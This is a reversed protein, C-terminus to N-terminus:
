EFNTPTQQKEIKKRHNGHLKYNIIKEDKDRIFVMTEGLDDDDRIRRFTDGEIHKYFTLSNGPKESPLNISVLKDGWTSIHVEGWYPFMSYYGVFEQLDIKKIPVDTQEIKKPVKVKNLISNIGEVYKNPNTGNANIMVSYARKNKLDIQLTTKYGPCDGGQGVWTNGDERKYVVFGLGRTIKWDSDTWHVNHMYKLTSSKLIEPTTTDRLRFQWSAFKGLDQVNSSFGAAPKLGNAKFFNVKERNGNRLM